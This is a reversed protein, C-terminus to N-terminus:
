VDLRNRPHDRAVRCPSPALGHELRVRPCPVPHLNEDVSLSLPPPSTPISFFFISSVFFKEIAPGRDKKERLITERFEGARRGGTAGGGLWLTSSWRGRRRRRCASRAGCPLPAKSPLSLSFSLSLSPSYLLAVRSRDIPATVASGSKRKKRRKRM